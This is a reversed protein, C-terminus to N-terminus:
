PSVDGLVTSTSFLGSAGPVRGWQPRPEASAPLNSSGAEETISKCGLMTNSDKEYVNEQKEGINAWEGKPREGQKSWRTKFRHRPSIGM